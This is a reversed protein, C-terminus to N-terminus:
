QYLTRRLFIEKSLFGLQKPQPLISEGSLMLLKLSMNPRDVPYQQVCLLAVNICRLVETGDCSDRLSTDLLELPRKEMWLRWAHGLLNHNHELHSFGRNKKGSLIELVLVEFGFVDSKMSFLGDLVYEPSMYGSCSFINSQFNFLLM